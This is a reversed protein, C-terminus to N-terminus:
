PFGILDYIQENDICISGPAFSKLIPETLRKARTAADGNLERDVGRLVIQRVSTGERAAKTKLRRYKTDPIDLTTRM